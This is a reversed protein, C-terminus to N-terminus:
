VYVRVWDVYMAARNQVPDLKVPWGGGLNLDLMFFMPKEGGRVQPARAVVKGDIWYVVEDPNVSVGYVHWRLAGPATRYRRDCLAIGGSDRGDGYSHTTHCSGLPEHGYLEVADIEAVRPKPSILNDSPLLWFAPWTGPAAPALVRAEFYGYRASFGSGGPRASGILGGIYRRGWGNPDAYGNPLPQATIRLYRSDVTNLNDFGRAPNPFIADGFQSVGWYEPKGAPYDASPNRGEKSISFPRSFEDRYALTKGKAGPGTGVGATLPTGANYLQFYTPSSASRSPGALARVQVFVPGARLQGFPISASARDGVVPVVIERLASTGPEASWATFGVRTLGAAQVTVPRTGRVRSYTQPCLVYILGAQVQQPARPACAPNDREDTTTSPDSVGYRLPTGGVPYVRLESIGISGTGVVRTVTFRVWRVSRTRFAVVTPFRPDNLLEGVELATGNDFTLLGSMVRAGTTSGYLQVATIRRTSTWRFQVWEGAKARGSWARGVNDKTSSPRGDRLLDGGTTSTTIKATPGLGVAPAASRAEPSPGSVALAVALALTAGGGLLHRRLRLKGASPPTSDSM